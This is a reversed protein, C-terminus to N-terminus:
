PIYNLTLKTVARISSPLISLAAQWSKNGWRWGLRWRINLLFSHHFFIKANHKSVIAFRENTNGPHVGLVM